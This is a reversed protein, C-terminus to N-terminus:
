KNIQKYINIANRLHFPNLKYIAYYYSNGFKNVGTRVGRTLSLSNKNIIESIRTRYGSLYPFDMISVEGKNILVRLIEAKNTKPNQLKM